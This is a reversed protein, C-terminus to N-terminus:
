YLYKNLFSESNLVEIESFYFDGIDETILVKCGANLASYYELGDEFDHIRKNSFTKKVENPGIQTVKIKQCFLELKSRAVSSGSKKESFYFAISLCVPSTYLEYKQFDVLNFIRSSHVFLPYEKNFVSVILNADIFLKM